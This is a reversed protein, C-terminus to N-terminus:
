LVLVGDVMFLFVHLCSCSAGPGMMDAELCVALFVRLHKQYEGLQRGVM